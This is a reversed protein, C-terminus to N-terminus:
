EFKLNSKAISVGLVCPLVFKVADFAIYIFHTNSFPVATGNIVETARADLVPLLWLTELILLLAIVAFSYIQFKSKPKVKVFSVLM